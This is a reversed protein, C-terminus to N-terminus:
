PVPHGRAGPEMAGEGACTQIEHRIRPAKFHKGGDRTRPPQERTNDTCEVLQQRTPQCHKVRGVHTYANDGTTPRQLPAGQGTVSPLLLSSRRGIGPTM